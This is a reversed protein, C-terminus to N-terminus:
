MDKIMQDIEEKSHEEQKFGRPLTKKCTPYNVCGWFEGYVGNQPRMPVGCVPCLPCDEGIPRGLSDEPVIHNPM